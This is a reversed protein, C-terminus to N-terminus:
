WAGITLTLANTSTLATIDGLVGLEVAVLQQHVIQGALAVTNPVRSSSM